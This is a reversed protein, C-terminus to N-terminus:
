RGRKRKVEVGALLLGRLYKSVPTSGAAKKLRAAEEKTFWLPLQINHLDDPHKRKRAKAKKKAM